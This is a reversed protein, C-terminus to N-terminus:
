SISCILTINRSKSQRKIKLKLNKNGPIIKEFDNILNNRM